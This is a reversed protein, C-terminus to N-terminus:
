AFCFWVLVPVGDGGGVVVLILLMISSLRISFMQSMTSSLRCRRVKGSFSSSVRLQQDFGSSMRQEDSNLRLFLGPVRRGLWIIIGGSDGPVVFRRELDWFRRRLPPRRLPIILLMEEMKESEDQELVAADNRRDEIADVAEDIPAEDGGALRFFAELGEGMWFSTFCM